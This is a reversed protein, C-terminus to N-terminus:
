FSIAFNRRLILLVYHNLIIVLHHNVKFFDLHPHYKDISHVPSDFSYISALKAQESLMLCDLTQGICNNINM